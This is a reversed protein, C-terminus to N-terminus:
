TYLQGEVPVSVEGSSITCCGLGTRHNISEQLVGWQVPLLGADGESPPHCAASILVSCSGVVPIESHLRRFGLGILLSILFISVVITFIIALPSYNLAWGVKDTPGTEAVWNGSSGSYGTVNIVFFSQSVLWHLSSMLVMLPLSYKYPLQLFYTTRQQGEPISTRLKTRGFGIKSWEWGQLMDTLLNNILLYGLSVVLQPTNALIVLKFPNSGGDSYANGNRNVVTIGSSQGFGLSWISGYQNDYIPSKISFLGAVLAGVAM